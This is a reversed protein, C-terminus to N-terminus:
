CFHEATNRDTTNVLWIGVRDRNIHKKKALYAELADIMRRWQINDASDPGEVPPDSSRGIWRYSFFVIHDTGRDAVASAQDTAHRQSKQTDFRPMKGYGKFVNYRVYDFTDFVGDVEQNMILDACISRLSAISDDEGLRLRPRIEEQLIKRYHRRLSSQHLKEQVLVEINRQIQTDTLKPVWTSFYEHQQERFSQLLVRVMQSADDNDSLFAYDLANYGQEDYSDFNIGAQAMLKLYGLNELTPEKCLAHVPGCVGVPVTWCEIAKDTQGDYWLAHGYFFSSFGKVTPDGQRSQSEEAMTVAESTKGQAILVLTLRDMGIVEWSKSMAVHRSTPNESQLRMHLARARSVRESLQGYAIKLLEADFPQTQQSLNYACMGENGVARCIEIEAEHAAQRGLDYQRKFVARAEDYKNGHRYVVGMEGLIEASKLPSTYKHVKLADDLTKISREYQGFRRYIGGLQFLIGQQREESEPFDSRSCIQLMDQLVALKEQWEARKHHEEAQSELSTFDSVVDQNDRM